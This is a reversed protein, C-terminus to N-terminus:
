GAASFTKRYDSPTVKALSRFVKRFATVDGYGVALAVQEVPEPTTVLLEKAREIRVRQVYGHVTDGTARKFRRALTRPSMACAKAVGEVDPPDQFNKELLEQVAAIAKDGHRSTPTLAAYPMQSRRGMDLLLSRATETAVAHGQFREVLFTCLDFYSHVGGGTVLRGEDVILKEVTLHVHPHAARFTEAFGWHTTARLGDLLGSAALAFAGTCVSALTAGAAHLRRLWPTLVAATEPVTAVDAASLVVLHAAAVEAVACDPILRTGNLCTVPAGDLSAIRVRFSPAAPRGHIMPWLVGSLSFIDAPGTVTSAVTRPLAVIVVEAPAPVRAQKKRAM